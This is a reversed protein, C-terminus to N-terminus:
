GNHEKICKADKNDASIPWDKISLYARCVDSQTRPVYGLNQVIRNAAVVDFSFIIATRIFVSQGLYKYDRRKWRSEEPFSIWYQEGKEKDIKHTEFYQKVKRLHKVNIGGAKTGAAPREWAHYSLSAGYEDYENTDDTIMDQIIHNEINMDFFPYNSPMIISKDLGYEEMCNLERDLLDVPDGRYVSISLKRGLEELVDDEKNTSTCLIVEDVLALEASKRLVIEIMSVGAIEAWIKRPWPGHTARARIIAGVRNHM